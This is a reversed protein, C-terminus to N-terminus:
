GKLFTFCSFFENDSVTENTEPDYNEDKWIDNTNYVYCCRAGTSWAEYDCCMPDRLEYMENDIVVSRCFDTCWDLNFREDEQYKYIKVM